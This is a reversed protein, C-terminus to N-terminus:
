ETAASSHRRRRWRFIIATFGIGGLILSSPEPVVAPTLVFGDLAAQAAIQPFYNGLFSDATGAPNMSSDQLQLWHHGLFTLQNGVPVFSPSGSDGGTVVFQDQPGSPSYLSIATLTTTVVTFSQFGAITNSGVQQHQGVMLMSQGTLQAQTGTLIQYNAVGTAGTPLASSLKGFLIDTGGIETLSAVTRTVYSGDKAKFAITGGLSPQFHWAGIFDIPDIMTFGQAGSPSTGPVWGVGSFDFSNAFFTPNSTPPTGGPFTSAVFRDNRAPSYGDIIEAQL